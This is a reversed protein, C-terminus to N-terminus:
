VCCGEKEPKLNLEMPTSIPKCNAMEFKALLNKTYETQSLTLIGKKRDRNVKMGMCHKVPGLLKLDFNGQLVKILRQKENVNDSFIFFDDVYLAIIVKSGKKNKVYVCPECKSQKYGIEILVDHIKQNWARSAQKLGYISKKLLCVKNGDGKEHGSPQEMYVKESLNGNLFATSVDIHEIDMDQEAGIAFLLRLTSYRVVAAFAEEYDV